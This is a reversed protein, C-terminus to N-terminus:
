RASQNVIVKALATKLVRRRARIPVPATPSRDRQLPNAARPERAPKNITLTRKAPNQKDATKAQLARKTKTTTRILRIPSSVKALVAAKNIKPNPNSAPNKTPRNNRLEKAKTKTQRKHNTAMKNRARSRRAALSTIRTARSSAMKHNNTPVLSRKAARNIAAPAPSNNERRVKRSRAREKVATKRNSSARNNSHIKIASGSSSASLSGIQQRSNGQIPRHSAFIGASRSSQIPRRREITM